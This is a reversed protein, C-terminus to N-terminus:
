LGLLEKKKADFEDQTMVGQDLLEKYKVLVDANNIRNDKNPATENSAIAENIKSQILIPPVIPIFIALVLCLTGIDSPVNREKAIKDVRKATKYTWYIMYFPVFLCLLLKTTPNREEEDKVLNTFKTRKYIWVYQWIGFTFLLLCIHAGLSIHHEKNIKNKEISEKISTEQVYPNAIWLGCLLIAICYLVYVLGRYMIGFDAIHNVLYLVIFIGTAIYLTNTLAKKFKTPSKTLKDTLALLVVVILSISLLIEPIVDCVFSLLRFGFGYIRSPYVERYIYKVEKILSDLGSINFIALILFPIAIIFNTKKMFLLVAVAITSLILILDVIGIPIDYKLCGFINVISWVSYVAMLIAGIPFKFKKEQNSLTETSM